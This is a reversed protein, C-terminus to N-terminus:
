FKAPKRRYENEVFLDRAKTMKWLSLVVWCIDIKKIFNKFLFNNENYGVQSIREMIM